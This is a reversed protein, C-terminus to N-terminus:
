DKRRRATLSGLGALGGLMMLGAAPLPVAAVEVNTLLDQVGASNLIHYQQTDSQFDTSAVVDLWDQALLEAANSAAGSGTIQFFGADIDYAGTETTIEWAAMQFAAATQADGVLPLAYSALIQLDETISDSMVSGQAYTRPMILPNLPELCFAIFSAFAGTATGDTLRFAGAAINNLVQSGVQMSTAAYWQNEGNEDAFVNSQLGNLGLTEAQVPTMATFALLMATATSFKYM